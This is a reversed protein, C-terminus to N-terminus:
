VPPPHFHDSQPIVQSISPQLGKFKQALSESLYDKTPSILQSDVYQAFRQAQQAKISEGKELIHALTVAQAFLQRM